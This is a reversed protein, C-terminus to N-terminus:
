RLWCARSVSTGPPLPPRSTWASPLSEHADEIRVALAQPEAVDQVFRRVTDQVMTQEESLQFNNM